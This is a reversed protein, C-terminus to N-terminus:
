SIFGTLGEGQWGLRLMQDVVKISLSPDAYVFLQGDATSAMLNTCDKNLALATVDQGQQLKFMHLAQLTHLHFLIITPSPQMGGTTEKRGEGYSTHSAYYSADLGTPNNVHWSIDPEVLKTCSTGVVAYQGDVSVDICTVDGESSALETRSIAIGNISYTSLSRNMKDWVILIGESSLAVADVKQLPLRRMLRGRLISHLLVGRTRSCSVAIDLDANICCCILEDVHGRLIHLPGEIRRKRGEAIINAGLHDANSTSSVAAAAAAAPSMNGSSSTSATSNSHIRWLMATSDRSGTLCTSGDPSLSLCTIPACHGSATELTRASEGAILKMSNDAHGGTLVYADRTIAVVSRSRIGPAVLANARPYHWEASGSGAQRSFLRILAGGGSIAAPKGHQFHFPMGQGDPTHPQWKHVAVCCAPANMDVTIVSDYTTCIAGAPVNCRECYPVTYCQASSPNKFITQLHLVEELPMRKTHPAVLLQSPTQGFYKIQDQTAKRLVPDVIKDIDVAGEYTMYFFVNNSAVAEKGKQKYGFILDVWEHLHASVFPSELAARHKQIFDVPNTAWPPLKVDGLKEGLQTKGLNIDNTNILIEPLYFLEPVLEKVDSMDELVGNWTAGIDGFMRDAHDFKGGQLQISLTTFPETRVLYYLVTGATSYHSGYHFRPIVPDDFNDYRELYKELRSPNLAGIPKSLDRYVDHRELDLTESSYDALVWPFIPYQTIDNYSRGALTNLQMLYEFNSIEWRAWCETLQTRKLLYEPRQTGAYINNLFPPRAQVLAKYAKRRGEATGFDFFFNSRDVMFLELASRRLLYRRSYIERLASLPWVRGVAGKWGLTGESEDNELGGMPVHHDLLFFIGRSTVQFIGKSVKLPQVMTVPIDLFLKENSEGVGMHTPAAASFLGATARPSLATSGAAVHDDSSSQKSSISLRYEKDERRDEFDGADSQFTEDDVIEELVSPEPLLKAAEPPLPSSTRSAEERSQSLGESSEANEQYDAAAGHHDTGKYTRKLRKRMRLSNEIFDLKWFVRQNSLLQWAVPGFLTQMELLHRTLSRWARNGVAKDNHVGSVLQMHRMVEAKQLKRYTEVMEALAVLLKLTGVSGEKDPLDHGVEPSLAGSEVWAINMSELIGWRRARERDSSNRRQASSAMAVAGLGRGSGIKAAREQDRAAAMAAAKAAAKDKPTSLPRKPSEPSKQFTAFSRLRSTRRELASIERKQHSGKSSNVEGGGAGAAAMALAMAAPPSAFAAAWEPTVMSLTAELPHADTALSRDEVALPSQGAADTLDHIGSLLPRWRRLLTTFPPVIMELYHKRLVKKDPSVSHWVESYMICASVLVRQRRSETLPMTLLPALVRWLLAAKTRAHHPVAMNGSTSFSDIRSLKMSFSDVTSRSRGLSPSSNEIGKDEERMALLVMRLMTFFPQDSDLLQQLAHMGGSGAGAGGGYGFSSGGAAVRSDDLLLAQLMSISKRVLPLEVWDGNEDKEIVAMWSDWGSGGGGFHVAKAPLGVGYWMRSRRKWGNALEVGYSGYSAFACRVSEYPEAAAAATLREMAAASIQGNSDAMSALVDLSLGGSDHGTTFRRSGIGESGDSYTRALGLLSPSPMFARPSAPGSSLPASSLSANFIQCQLRLHDEVLMLLVLSNEALSMSLYAAADAEAKAAKPSLGGAAVGAAAAAVVQTQLQLERASFDLLGGLLRRKIVPLCEERRQRQEGTSSGGIMALWEACHITSEVDKWGDKQRMSHELIIILFNYILDEIEVCSSCSEQVKLLGAEYNSILIELLWEPWEPMTTLIARNESHTCALFLIDQLARIQLLRSGYPLARFLVLLLQTHEFSYVSDYLNLRDDPSLSGAESRITAALLAVYVNDTLLRKPAAQFAKQMAYLLWVSANIFWGPAHDGSIMASPMLPVNSSPLSIIPTNSLKLHGGTVLAGLLAIIGIMIGDGNDVNRFNNRVSDAIISLGIGGLNRASLLGSMRSASDLSEVRLSNEFVTALNAGGMSPEAVSGSDSQVDESTECEESVENKCNNKGGVTTENKVSELHQTYLPTEGAECERQLLALLMEIGGYCLFNEAFVAARSTNPQVVLRYLLHLVRAVQNPQPCDLLFKIIIQVDTSAISGRSTGLLLEIIVLLEDILANLEGVPRSLKEGAFMHISDSEPVIWYCKRCCDLLMQVANAARMTASETFVMDALSSLLKKQLGYSCRSWLKLDLLLKNYLQVKLTDNNKPAQALLVVAVVVDENRVDPRDQGQIIKTPDELSPVCLLYALTQALLQPAHARLLEEANGPHQLSLSMMRLIPAALVVAKSSINLDSVVPEWSDRDVAGIALPLLSLPGGEALAWIADVPRLRVAVHVHGLVEAPRRHTGAAGAPSADPCSRGVLLKPHYHLHLCPGLELDLATSEEAATMAVENTSFCPLGAGLGFAPVADGGRAALQGMKEEGIPEKFIYVPGMEAFLPCQRRRRQLGAMAPPPNTGICCFALPKSVRPFEFPRSEHLHGDVYLKVESETKGLISQRHSHELGIFYWHRPKFSYTFHLSAKKGKSGAIEVVLFQGHFYAEVGQNDVSLFSFLRPMHATGEGALASAAAAASMASSKGVKAVAAAAIAAATAATHVTDAFSEIYLWTAFAYGNVFPWRSEGPGLLGSSEGDFEFTHSPGKTEEGSMARELTLVLDLSKGEPIADAIIGLWEWLDVVDLRHSSLVALMDLLPSANWTDQMTVSSHHANSTFITRAAALLIRLLGADSCMSRNRTCAQLVLLLGNVMKTRPDMDIEPDDHSPLCPILEGAVLAAGVSLMMRPAATDKEDCQGEAGGMKALLVDVVLTSPNNEEQLQFKEGAVVRKLKQLSSPDSGHIASDILHMLEPSANPLVAKGRQLLPSGVPSSFSSEGNFSFSTNFSSFTKPSFNLSKQSAPSGIFDELTRGTYITKSEEDGHQRGTTNDKTAVDSFTGRREFVSTTRAHTGNDMISGASDLTKTHGYSGLGIRELLSSSRSPTAEAQSDQLSVQVFQEDREQDRENISSSAQWKEVSWDLGTSAVWSVEQSSDMELSDSSQQSAHGEYEEGVDRVLDLQGAKANLEDNDVLQGSGHVLDAFQGLPSSNVNNVNESPNYIMESAASDFIIFSAPNLHNLQIESTPGIAQVLRSRNGGGDLSDDYVLSKEPGISKSDTILDETTEGEILRACNEQAEVNSNEFIGPAANTEENMGGRQTCEPSAKSPMVTEVLRRDHDANEVYSTDEHIDMGPSASPIDAPFQSGKLSETCHDDGENEVKSNAINSSDAKEDAVCPAILKGGDLDTGDETDPVTSVASQLDM